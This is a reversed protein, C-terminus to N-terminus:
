EINPVNQATILNINLEWLALKFPKYAANNIKVLSYGNEAIM